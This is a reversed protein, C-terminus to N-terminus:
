QVDVLRWYALVGIISVKALMSVGNAVEVVDGIHRKNLTHRTHSEGGTKSQNSFPASCKWEQKETHSREECM